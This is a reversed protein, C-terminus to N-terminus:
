QFQQQQQQPATNSPQQLSFDLKQAANQLIMVDRHLAPSIPVLTYLWHITKALLDSLTHASIM